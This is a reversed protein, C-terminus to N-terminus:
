ATTPEAGPGEHPRRRSPPLERDPDLFQKVMQVVLAWVEIPQGTTERYSAAYATLAQHLEGPVRANLEAAPYTQVPKLKV